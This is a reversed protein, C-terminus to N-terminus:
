ESYLPQERPTVLQVERSNLQARVISLPQERLEVWAALLGCAM